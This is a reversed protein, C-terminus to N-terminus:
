RLRCLSVLRSSRYNWGMCAHEGKGGELDMPVAVASCHSAAVLSSTSLPSSSSASTTTSSSSSSSSSSGSGAASRGPPGHGASSDAFGSVRLQSALGASDAGRLSAEVGRDVALPVVGALFKRVSEEAVNVALPQARRLDQRLGYLIAYDAPALYSRGADDVLRRLAADCSEALLFRLAVDYLAPTDRVHAVIADESAGVALARVM